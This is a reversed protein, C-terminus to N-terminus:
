ETAVGIAARIRIDDSKNNIIVPRNDPPIILELSDSPMLQLLSEVLFANLLINFPGGSAATYPIDENTFELHSSTNEMNSISLQKGDFKLNIRYTKDGLVRRVNAVNDYFIQRNVEIAPGTNQFIEAYAPFAGVVVQSLLTTRLGDSDVIFKIKRDSAHVQIQDGESLMTHLIATSAKSLIVEFDASEIPEPYTIELIRWGDSVAFVIKQDKIRMLIGTLGVLDSTYASVMSALSKFISSLFAAPITFHTGRPMENDRPDIDKVVQTFSRTQKVSSTFEYFTQATLMLKTPTARLTVDDSGTSSDDTKARLKMVTQYFDTGNISVKGAKKVDAFVETTATLTAEDGTILRLRGEEAVLTYVAFGFGSTVLSKLPKIRRLMGLLDITPVIVHM